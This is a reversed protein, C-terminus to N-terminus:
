CKRWVGDRIFADAREQSKQIIDRDYGIIGLLKIANRSTAKGKKIAYSFVVNDDVIEEDFHYNDYFDSLIGTLEIDHTAAFCMIDDGSLGKLIESSAAIREVTNTGRLVEDIFCLVYGKEKAADVIRKLSKIEVIYYSEGSEIDDALAMSSYIRYMPAKYSDAPCTYITQALLANIAVSKLFTSKGSANSGTILVSRDTTISNAVPKKIELHYVNELEIRNEDIFEPKCMKPLLRRFNAVSIMAEIFGLKDMLEIVGQYNKDFYRVMSNFKILDVHTFMKIYEMLIDGLSGSNGKKSVIVYSNRTIKGFHKAAFEFYENYEKLEPINLKTICKATNVMTVLQRICEFYSDIRNKLKYYTIISAGSSVLLMMIGIVPDIFLMYVLSFIICFIMLFHFLNSDAKLKSLNDMYDSISIKKTFGIDCFSSMITTREKEHSDFYQIVRNREELIKKNFVPKRLIKYLYDRGVSSNTNNIMMFINDMDLDNWTIDDIFFEGDKLTNKFFHSICQYEEYTFETKKLQGFGSLLRYYRNKAASKSMFYGIVAVVAIIAIVILVIQYKYEDM